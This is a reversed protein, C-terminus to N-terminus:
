TLERRVTRKQDPVFRLVYEERKAVLSCWDVGFTECYDFKSCWVVGSATTILDVAVLNHLLALQFKQSFTLTECTALACFAPLKPSPSDVTSERVHQTLADEAWLRCLSGAVGLGRDRQAEGPARSSRAAIDMKKERRSANLARALASERARTYEKRRCQWPGLAHTHCAPRACPEPGVFHVIRPTRRPGPAFKKDRFKMQNARVFALDGHGLVGGLVKVLAVIANVGAIKIGGVVPHNKKVGKM